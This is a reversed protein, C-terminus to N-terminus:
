PRAVDPGLCVGRKVFSCNEGTALFMQCTPWTQRSQPSSCHGPRKKRQVREKYVAAHLSEIRTEGKKKRVIEHVPGKQNDDV